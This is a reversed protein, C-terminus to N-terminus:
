KEQLQASVAHEDHRPQPLFQTQMNGGPVHLRKRTQMNGGPEHLQKCTQMNGGPEHLQKRTQINEGPINLRKRTQMNGGRVHLRKRTQMNGGRVYLWKHTQKTPHKANLCARETVEVRLRLQAHFHTNAPMQTTSQPLAPIDFRM